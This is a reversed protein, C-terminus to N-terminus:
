DLVMKLFRATAGAGEKHHCLFFAFPKFNANHLRSWCGYCIVVPVLGLLLCIFAVCMHSTGDTADPDDIFFVSLSVVYLVSIAVVVDMINALQVRWPKFHITIMISFLLSWQFLGIQLLPSPISPIIAIAANRLLFFIVYWHCEIRFRFLLFAYAHAYDTLGERMMKPFDRVVKATWAIFGVPVLMMVAGIAVMTAHDDSSGDSWSCVVTPYSRVTRWGNPHKICEFPAFLTSVTAIFFAFFVTGVAGILSPLTEKFKGGNFVLVKVVHLITMFVAILLVFTVKLIFLHLPDLPVVCGLRLFEINFNFIHM